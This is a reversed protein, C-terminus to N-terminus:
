ISCGWVNISSLFEVQDYPCVAMEIGVLYIRLISQGPSSNYETTAQCGFVGNYMESQCLFYRGYYKCSPTIM